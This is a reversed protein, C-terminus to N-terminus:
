NFEDLALDELNQIVFGNHALLNLTKEAADILATRDLLDYDAPNDWDLDPEYQKAIIRAYQEANISHPRQYTAVSESM